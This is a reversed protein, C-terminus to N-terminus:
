LKGVKVKFIRVKMQFSRSMLYGQGQIFNLKVIISKIEHTTKTNKLTHFQTNVEKWSEILHKLDV